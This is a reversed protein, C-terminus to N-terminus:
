LNYEQLWYQWQCIRKAARIESDTLITKVTIHDTYLMTSHKSKKVLWWIEELCQLVALVERETIYYRMEADTFAFLMFMIIKKCWCTKHSFIIKVSMEELQFLINRIETESVDTM